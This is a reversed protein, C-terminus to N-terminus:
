FWITSRVCNMVKMGEQRLTENKWFFILCNFTSNMSVFTSLWLSLPVVKQDYLPLEQTVFLGCLVIGPCYCVFLCAVALFCLSVKKLDFIHKRREKDSPTFHVADVRTGVKKAKAIVFMKYNLLLLMLFYFPLYVLVLINDPIVLNRFSLTSQIINLVLLVALFTLIRKKTVSTRHFIPYVIGLFREINLTLLAWMSFGDLVVCIYIRIQERLEDYDGLFFYLTSIILVPHTVAVVALDFCCLVLIMFHCLRKRHQSSKWLSVIVVSNLFVGSIMFLINVACLFLM